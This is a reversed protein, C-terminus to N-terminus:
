GFAFPIDAPIWGFEDLPLQRAAPDCGAALVMPIALRIVGKM